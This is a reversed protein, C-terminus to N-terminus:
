HKFYCIEERNSAKEGQRATLQGDEVMTKVIGRVMDRGPAKQGAAAFWDRVNEVLKSQNCGPHAAVMDLVTAKIAKLLLTKADDTPWAYFRASTLVDDPTSEYTFLAGVSQFPVGRRVKTPTLIVVDENPRRDIHLVLDCAAEIGSYGRLTEGRRVTNGDGNSASKRQHHILIIAARTVSAIERLHSMVPQMEDTNENAGGKILGLNDIVVVKAGEHKILGMFDIANERKSLDLWPLALSYYIFPTAQTLGYATGVAEVREDTLDEGNDYDIWMVPTQTTTFAPQEVLRGPLTELWPRGTAICALMDKCLMSKLSGPAGFVISVSAERILKDVFHVAAPRPSFAHEMTRRQWHKVYQNNESQINDASKFRREVDLDLEDVPPYDSGNPM